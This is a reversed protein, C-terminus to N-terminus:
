GLTQFVLFFLLSMCQICGQQALSFDELNILFQSQTVNEGRAQKDRIQKSVDEFARDLYRTFRRAQGAQHIKYIM